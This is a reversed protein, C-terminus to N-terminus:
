EAKAAAPAEAKAAARVPERPVPAAERVADGPRKGEGLEARPKEREAPPQSAGGRRLMLVVGVIVVLVVVAIVITTSTFM